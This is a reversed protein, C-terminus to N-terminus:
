RFRPTVDRNRVEPTGALAAQVYQMVHHVDKHVIAASRAEFKLNGRHAIVNQPSSLLGRHDGM